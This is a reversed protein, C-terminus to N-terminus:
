CKISSRKWIRDAYVSYKGLSGDVLHLFVNCFYRLTPCRGTRTLITAHPHMLSPTAVRSQIRPETGTARMDLDVEGIM